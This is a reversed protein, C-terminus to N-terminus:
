LSSVIATHLSEPADMADYCDEPFPCWPREPPDKSAPNKGDPYKKFKVFDRDHTWSLCQLDPTDREKVTTHDAQYDTSQQYASNICWIILNHRSGCEINDAGHRRSGLHFVARGVEHRYQHSFKRHQASNSAGCFILGSGVFGPDGLCINWTVDSADTHMDLGTDKGPEYSVIFSHHDDFHSSQRPFFVSSIARLYYQQLETLMKKMGIQNLILGYNNMSNPRFVPLGSSLYCDKEEVIMACTRPTFIPLSYVEHADERILGSDLLAKVTLGEITEFFKGEPSHEQLVELIKMFQPDFMDRTWGDGGQSMSHFLPPHRRLRRYKIIADNVVGCATCEPRGCDEELDSDDNRQQSM